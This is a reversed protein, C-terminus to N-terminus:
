LNLFTINSPFFIQFIKGLHRPRDGSHLDTAALEQTHAVDQDLLSECIPFFILVSSVRDVVSFHEVSRLECLKRGVEKVM